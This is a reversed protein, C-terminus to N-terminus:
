PSLGGAAGAGPPLGARARTALGQATRVLGTTVAVVLLALVVSVPHARITDVSWGTAISFGKVIVRGVPQHFCLIWLSAAGVVRLLRVERLWAATLLVLFIGPLSEAFLTPVSTGFSVSYLDVTNRTLLSLALLVLWLVPLWAARPPAALLRPVPSSQLAHGLWFWGVTVLAQNVGFPLKPAHWSYLAQGVAVMALILPSRLTGGRVRSAVVYLMVTAFYVPLFWIAGGFRLWFHPGDGAYALGYLGEYWPFNAGSPRYRGEFAVWYVLLVAAAQYFPVLLSRLKHRAITALSGPADRYLLGGVVFFLPLHFCYLWQKGLDSFHGVAVLIMGLGRAADLTANRSPVTM